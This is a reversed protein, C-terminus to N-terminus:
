SPNMHIRGNQRRAMHAEYHINRKTRSFFAANCGSVTCRHLSQVHVSECHHKLSSLDKFCDKCGRCPYSGDKNPRPAEDEVCYNLKRSHPPSYNPQCGFANLSQPLFGLPIPPFNPLMGFPTFLFSHQAFMDRNSLYTDPLQLHPYPSPFPLQQSLHNKLKDSEKARYYLHSEVYPVAREEENYRSILEMQERIKDLFRSSEESIRYEEIKRHLSMNASHRDKSRKSSFAARCGDVNCKYMLKLHANQYHTKLVYINQFIKGCVTCKRPNEHDMPVDPTSVFFGNDFHGFIQGHTDEANYDFSSVSSSRSRDSYDISDNMTLNYPGLSSDHKKNVSPFDGKSLSELRKLANESSFHEENTRDNTPKYVDQKDIPEDKVRLDQINYSMDTPEDKIVPAPLTEQQSESKTKESKEQPLDDNNIPVQNASAEEDNETKVRKLDLACENEDKDPRDATSKQDNIGNETIYHNQLRTPNLNKRKRKMVEPSAAEDKRNDAVENNDSVSRQDFDTESDDISGISKNLNLYYDSTDIHEGDEDDDDGAVVVIGDDEDSDGQGDQDKNEVSDSERRMPHSHDFSPSFNMNMNNKYDLPLSTPFQGMNHPPNLLPYSGFPHMPNIVPPINLGARHPSILVPHVQATRGDHPSIKRRLHPSHLKPNPNASHRNRSRRSSFMMSCGEVTCKHMERLHVASFHIKLAGKDCFTKLCVNCQVRKKGTAPNIFHTGLNLPMQSAGWQRKPPSICKGLMMNRSNQAAEAYSDKSLNLVNDDDSKPDESRAKGNSHIKNESPETPKASMQPLLAQLSALGMPNQSLAAVMAAQHNFASPMTMAPIPLNSPLPFNFFQSRMLDMTAKEASALDYPKRNEEKDNNENAKNKRFDFPQMSQLHSLPSSNIPSTTSLPSSSTSLRISHNPSAEASSVRHPPSQQVPTSRNNNPSMTEKKVEAHNERPSSRTDREQLSKLYDYHQKAEMVHQFYKLSEDHRVDRSSHEMLRRFEAELKSQEFARPDPYEPRKDPKDYGTGPPSPLGNKKYLPLLSTKHLARAEQLKLIQQLAMNHEPGRGGWREASGSQSEEICVYTCFWGTVDMQQAIMHAAKVLTRTWEMM